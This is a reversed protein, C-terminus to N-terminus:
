ISEVIVPALPARVLSRLERKLGLIERRQRVIIMLSAAIGVAAGLAFFLLLMLVLPAHWELGLFYRMAVVDTNKVAFGFLLLFIAVGAATRVLAWLKQMM